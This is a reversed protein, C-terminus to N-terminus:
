TRWWVRKTSNDWLLLHWWATLAGAKYEPPGFVPQEKKNKNKM